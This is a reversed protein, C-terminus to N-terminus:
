LHVRGGDGDDDDDTADDIKQIYVGTSVLHYQADMWNGFCLVYVSPCEWEFITQILFDSPIGNVFSLIIYSFLQISPAQNCTFKRHLLTWKGCDESKM